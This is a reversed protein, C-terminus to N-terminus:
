KGIKVGFGAGFGVCLRGNTGIGVVPGAFIGWRREEPITTPNYRLTYTLTDLSVAFGSARVSLDLETTDTTLTTDYIYRSIPVEVRVSDVRVSDKWLTDHLPLMVTVTHTVYSTDWVMDTITDHVYVVSNAVNGENRCRKQVLVLLIVSLTFIICWLAQKQIKMTQKKTLIFGAPFVPM